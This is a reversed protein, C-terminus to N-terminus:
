IDGASLCLRYNSVETAFEKGPTFLPQVTSVRVAPPLQGTSVGLGSVGCGSWAQMRASRHQGECCTMASQHQIKIARGEALRVAQGHSVKQQYWRFSSSVSAILM